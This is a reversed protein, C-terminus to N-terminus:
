SAKPSQLERTSKVRFCTLSLHVDYKGKKRNTPLPSPFWDVHSILFKYKIIYINNYEFKTIKKLLHRFSAPMATQFYM